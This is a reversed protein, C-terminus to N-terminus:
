IWVKRLVSVSKCFERQIRNKLNRFIRQINRNRGWKKCKDINIDEYDIIKNPIVIYDSTNETKSSLDSRKQFHAYLIPEKVLCNESNIYVRYLQKKSYLFILNRSCEPHFISVFNLSNHPVMIDDFLKSDWVKEPYVAKWMDGVGKHWYEDFAFNKSNGFVFKYNLFGKIEKMFFTNCEKINRYLTFHGWGSIMWYNNLINDTLFSRIDGYILDIDGFGWFDFNEVEDKFIFGYAPRFDCLKYPNELKIEFNFLSAIKEKLDSFYLNIIKVNNRSPITQDTIIVFDITSNNYASELWYKFIPPFKGFYPIIVVISKM